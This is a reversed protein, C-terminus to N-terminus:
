PEITEEQKKPKKVPSSFYLGAQINVYNNALPFFFTFLNDTAVYFHFVNGPNLSIGMGLNRYSGKAMSYCLAIDVLKKINLNYALTFTPLAKKEVFDLRMLASLKHSKWQYYGEMFLKPNTSMVYKESVAESFLFVTDLGMEKVLQSFDDEILNSGKLFLTSVEDFSMGSFVLEENQYLPHNPNLSMRYSSAGQQNRNWKIWGMDILSAKVGFNLPLKVDIGVDFGGGWSSTLSNLITNANIKSFDFISGINTLSINGSIDNMLARPFYLTALASGKLHWNWESDTKLMWGEKINAGFIGMLIKGRAGLTIKDTLKYQLGISNDLYGLMSVLPIISMEEDIHSLNGDSVFQFLGKPIFFTNEMRLRSSFTLYSKKGVKFGFGLLEANMNLAIEGYSSGKSIRSFLGKPNIEKNGEADSSVVDNYTLINTGALLDFNNLVPLLSFHSRVTIESAPNYKLNYINDKFFNVVQANTQFVVFSFFMISFFRITKM